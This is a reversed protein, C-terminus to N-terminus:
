QAVRNLAHALSVLDWADRSRGPAAPRVTTNGSDLADEAIRPALERAARCCLDIAEHISLMAGYARLGEEIDTQTTM